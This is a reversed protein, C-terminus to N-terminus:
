LIPLQKALSHCIQSGLNTDSVGGAGRSLGMDAVDSGCQEVPKEGTVMASLKNYANFIGVLVPQNLSRDLGNQVAQAPQVNVPVFPRLDLPRVGGILLRVPQFNVLPQRFLKEVLVVGIVAIAAALFQFPQPPGVPPGSLSVAAVATPPAPVPGSALGHSVVVPNDAEGHRLRAHRSDVVQYAAVHFPAILQLLVEDDQLGVAEGGIVQRHHGVVVKHFDAVHHPRLLPQGARRTVQLKKLGEAKLRRLKGVQRHNGPRVPGLQRLAVARRGDAFVSSCPYRGSASSM